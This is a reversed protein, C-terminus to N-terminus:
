PPPAHPRCTRPWAAAWEACSIRPGCGLRARKRRWQAHTSRARARTHPRLPASRRLSRLPLLGTMCRHSFPPSGQGHHVERGLGGIRGFILLSFANSSLHEWNAHCFAATVFQWWRPALHYLPLAALAPQGQLLRTAAYVGFNLLLLLFVGHGLGKRSGTLGQRTPKPQRGAAAGPPDGGPQAALGLASVDVNYKKLIDDSGGAAHRRM